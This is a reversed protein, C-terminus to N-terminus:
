KGGKAIKEWRLRLSGDKATTITAPCPNVEFGRGQKGALVRIKEPNTDDLIDLVFVGDISALGRRHVRRLWNLPVSATVYSDTGSWKGNESWVRVSDGSIGPEGVHARAVHDGGAWRTESRRYSCKKLEATAVSASRLAARSVLSKSILPDTFSRNERRTERRAISADLAPRLQGPLKARDRKRWADLVQLCRCPEGGLAVLAREAEIDHDHLVLAGRDILSITHLSGSCRVKVSTYKEM